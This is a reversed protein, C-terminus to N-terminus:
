SAARSLLVALIAHVVRREQAAVAYVQEAVNVGDIECRPERIQM